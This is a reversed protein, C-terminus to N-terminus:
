KTVGMKLSGCHECPVRETPKGCDECAQVEPEAAKCAPCPVRAFSGPKDGLVPSLKERTGGCTSCEPEAAASRQDEVYLRVAERVKDAVAVRLLPQVDQPWDSLVREAYVQGLVEAPINRPTQSM